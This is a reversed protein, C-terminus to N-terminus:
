GVKSVMAVLIALIKEVQVIYYDRMDIYVYNNELKLFKWQNGTTVVGYIVPLELGENQNFLHAAYMEAVCQGLGNTINDNKAEVLTIIPAILYLQEPSQSIIFDCFGSLGKEKDVDLAAGSFFSIKNKLLKKIELLIPAVIFESKAKETAMATALPVNYNLMEALNPNVVIESIDSFLDDSDVLTLQFKEQVTKLTFDSYSMIFKGSNLKLSCM